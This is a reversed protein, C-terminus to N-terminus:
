KTIEELLHHFQNAVGVDHNLDVFPQYLSVPQISTSQFTSSNFVPTNVRILHKYPYVPVASDHHSHQGPQELNQEIIKTNKGVKKTVAIWNRM